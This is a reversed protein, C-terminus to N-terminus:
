LNKVQCINPELSRWPAQHPKVSASNRPARAVISVFSSLCEAAKDVDERCQAREYLWPMGALVLLKNTEYNPLHYNETQLYKWLWSSKPQYCPTLHASQPRTGWYQAPTQVRLDTLLGKCDLNCMRLASSTARRLQVHFFEMGYM